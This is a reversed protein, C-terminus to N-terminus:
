ESWIEFKKKTSSAVRCVVDDFGSHSFHMLAVSCFGHQQQCLLVCSLVSSLGQVSISIFQNSLANQKSPLDISRWEEHKQTTFDRCWHIHVSAQVDNGCASRKTINPCVFRIHVKCIVTCVTQRVFRFVTQIQTNGLVSKRFRGEARTNELSKTHSGVQVNNVQVTTFYLQLSLSLSALMQINSQEM